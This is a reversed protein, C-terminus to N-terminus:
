LVGRLTLVTSISTAPEPTVAGDFVKSGEEAKLEEEEEEPRKWVRQPPESDLGMPFGSGTAAAGGRRWCCRSSSFSLARRKERQTSPSTPIQATRRNRPKFVRQRHNSKTKDTPPTSNRTTPRPWRVAPINVQRGVRCRTKHIHLFPHLAHVSM